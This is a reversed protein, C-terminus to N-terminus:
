KRARRARRLKRTTGLLTAAVAAAEAVQAAHDRLMHWLRQKRSQAHGPMVDRIRRGAKATVSGAQNKIRLGTDRVAHTAEDLVGTM